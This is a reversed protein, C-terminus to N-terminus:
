ITISETKELKNTLEIIESKEQSYTNYLMVSTEDTQNEWSQLMKEITNIRSYLAVILYTEEKSTLKMTYLKSSSSGLSDFGQAVM